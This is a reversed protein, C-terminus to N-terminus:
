LCARAATGAPANTTTRPIPETSGSSVTARRPALLPTRSSIDLWSAETASSTSFALLSEKGTTATFSPKSLAPGTDRAMLCCTGASALCTMTRVSIIAFSRSELPMTGAQTATCWAMLARTGAALTRWMGFVTSSMAVGSSNRDSFSPANSMRGKLAKRWVVDLSLASKQHHPTRSSLWCFVLTSSSPGECVRQPKSKSREGSITKSSTRRVILIGIARRPVQLPTARQHVALNSSKSYEVFGRM